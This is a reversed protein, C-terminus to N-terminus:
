LKNFNGTSSSNEKSLNVGNFMMRTDHAWKSYLIQSQSSVENVLSTKSPYSNIELNPSKNLFVSSNNAFSNIANKNIQFQEQGFQQFKANM